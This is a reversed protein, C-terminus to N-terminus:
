IKESIFYALNYATSNVFRSFNGRQSSIFAKSDILVKSMALKQGSPADIFHITVALRDGDAATGITQGAKNTMALYNVDSFVVLLGEKQPEQSKTSVNLITRGELAEKLAQPLTVRNVEDILEIWEHEKGEKYGYHAAKGEGLDLWGLSLTDYSNLSRIPPTEQLLKYYRGCGFSSLALCIVLPWLKKGM